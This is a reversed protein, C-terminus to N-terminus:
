PGSFFTQILRVLNQLDDIKASVEDQVISFDLTNVIREVHDRTKHYNITELFYIDELDKSPYDRMQMDDNVPDFGFEQRIRDITLSAHIRSFHTHEALFWAEAEMIALILLPKTPDNPLGFEFGERIREIDGRPYPFVDRIGIIQEFNAAILGDYRDLIDSKVREDQGCDIILVFFEHGEDESTGTIEVVRRPGGRRGGSVREIGVGVNADGGLFLVLKEAFIQETQGEVFVALKNM